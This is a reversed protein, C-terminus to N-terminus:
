SLQAFLRTLRWSWGGAKLIGYYSIVFAPTNPLLIGVRDGKKLGQAM